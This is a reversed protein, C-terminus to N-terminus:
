FIIPWLIIHYHVTFLPSFIQVKLFNLCQQRIRSDGIFAFHLRKGKNTFCNVADKVTYWHLRCQHKRKSRIVFKNDSLLEASTSTDIFQSRDLVGDLCLPLSESNSDAPFRTSNLLICFFYIFLYYNLCPYWRVSM